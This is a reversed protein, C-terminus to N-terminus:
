KGSRPKWRFIDFKNHFIKPSTTFKLSQGTKEMLLNIIEAKGNPINNLDRNVYSVAGILIDSLQIIEIEESRVLQINKVVDDYFAYLLNNLVDKLKKVKEGGRTDKIDMYIYYEDDVSNVIEKLLLYYIRYYWENYTLSYKELNLKQKEPAIVCRFHLEDNDFFYEILEKYFELKNNSVKHWKVEAKPGINHKEKIRRIDRNIKKVKTKSCFVGGIIMIDNGDNQLHCSEDCYVNYKM